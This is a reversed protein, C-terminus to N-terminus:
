LDRSEAFCGDPLSGTFTLGHKRYLEFIGAINPFDRCMKPRSQYVSCEGTSLLQPCPFEIVAEIYEKSKQRFIFGRAQLYERMPETNPYLGSWESCCKGCRKCENPKEM